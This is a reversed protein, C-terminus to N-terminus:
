QVLAILVIFTMNKLDNPVSAEESLAAVTLNVGETSNWTGKTKLGETTLEVIELKFNTRFGEYDFKIVGTLGTM